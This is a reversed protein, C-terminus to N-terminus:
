PQWSVEVANTLNFTDPTCYAAANRYWIQYTRVGGGAPVLGRVSVPPDGPGPYQSAGAVNARTVLRVISGGACRLGDGFVLGLGGNAQGTGQFYLASSDPMGSGALVLTDNALSAGGTAGIHGGNADISNACGNGPAGANGCPCPTATGDGACYTPFGAGGLLLAITNDWLAAHSATYSPPYCFYNTDNVFVALGSGYAVTFMAASQDPNEAVVTTLPTPNIWRGPVNIGSISTVTGGPGQILPHNPLVITMSLGSSSIQGGFAPGAVLQAFQDCVPQSNLNDGMFLLAGGAFLWAQLADYEGQAMPASLRGTVFVDAGALQAATLLTTEQVTHNAALLQALPGVMGNGTLWYQYAGGNCRSGDFTLVHGATASSQLALPALLALAAFSLKM